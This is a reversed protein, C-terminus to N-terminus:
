FIARTTFQIPGAYYSTATRIYIDYETGSDLGTITYPQVDTTYTPAGPIANRAVVAIYWITPTGSWSLLLSGTTIQSTSIASPADSVYAAREIAGISPTISRTNGYYDVILSPIGFSTLDLGTQYGISTQPLPLAQTLNTNAFYGNAEYGTAQYTAFQLTNYSTGNISAIIDIAASAPNYYHNYNIIDNIVNTGTARLLMKSSSPNNSSTHLINNIIRVQNTGVSNTSDIGFISIGSVPSTPSGLITISNGCIFGFSNLHNAHNYFIATISGRSILNYILNNSIINTSVNSAVTSSVSIGTFGLGTTTNHAFPDHINNRNIITNVSNAVRISIGLTTPVLRTSLSYIYNNQILASHQNRAVVGSTRQNIFTNNTITNQYADSITPLTSLGGIACGNDMGIVTNNSFTIRKAAHGNNFTSNSNNVSNIIFGTSGGPTSIGLNRILCNTFTMDECNTNLSNYLHFGTNSTGSVTIILNNIDMWKTGEFSIAGKLALSTDLADSIFEEGNGQITIRNSTDLTPIFNFIIQGNYPGSGPTVNITTSSVYSARPLYYALDTFNNFNTGASLVDTPSASNITYSGAITLDFKTTFFPVFGNYYSLTSGNNNQIYVEYTTNPTLGTLTYPNTTAVYTPIGTPSANPAVLEINWSTLGGASDSWAMTASTHYIALFVMNYSAAQNFTDREFAGIDPTGSRAAGFYDVTLYPTFLGSVDLGVNIGTSTEAIIKGNLFPNVNYGNVQYNAAQLNAFQATTYNVNGITAIRNTGATSNNFMMNYDFSLTPTVLSATNSVFLTKVGTSESQIYVINNKINETSTTDQAISIGFKNSTGTGNTVISINNYYISLANVSTTTSSIGIIIGISQFNYILNNCILNNNGLASVGATIFIGTVSSLSAANTVMMDHIRNRNIITNLSSESTIGVYTTLNLPAILEQYINNNEIICNTQGTVFIGNASQDCVTCNRVVNQYSGTASLNSKNGVLIIGSRGNMFVCGDIVIRKSNNTPVTSSTPDSQINSISLHINDASFGGQQSDFYCNTINMDECYNNSMDKLLIMGFHQMTLGKLKLNNINMWTTAEFRMIYRGFSYGFYIIENNNGNITITNTVSAGTHRKFIFHENYPGNSVNVTVPGAIVSVSLYYALDTFSRFNTGATLIDTPNLKDITYVGSFSINSITNIRTPGSWYSQTVDDSQVYVEYATLPSLGLLTYPNSVGSHTPTGTPIGNLPVLEINWLSAVGNETWSIQASNATISSIVIASPAQITFALREIAGINPPIPRVRDFYDNLLAPVGLSTLNFGLNFGVATQPIYSDARLFMDTYYGNTERGTAQLNAFQAVSYSVGAITAIRNTGGSSPNYYMNYDLEINTLSSILNVLTKIASGTSNIHFVNNKFKYVYPLPAPTTGYLICDTTNAAVSNIFSFTNNYISLTTATGIIYIGRVIGISTFNYFLNNSVILDSNTGTPSYIGFASSATSLSPALTYPDHIRNRNILLNVNGLINIFSYTNGSFDIYLTMRHINNNEIIGNVQYEFQIGSSFQNFIECNRVINQYAGTITTNTSNGRFYVGALGGSLKCSDIIINKANHTYTSLLDFENHMLIPYYDTLSISTVAQEVEITCGIININNCDYSNINDRVFLIGWQYGGTMRINLNTINIYQSGYFLIGYKKSLYKATYQLLENQGDITVTYTGFSTNRNFEVQETYPGSGSVVNITVNSTLYAKNVYYAMDTFNNFNTGASEIDTAAASNITYAGSMNIYTELRIPGVWIDATGRTYQRIYVDYQTLPDLGTITYPNTINTYTAGVPIFNVPGIALDWQTEPSTFAITASEHTKTVSIASIQSIRAITYPNVAQSGDVDTATLTYTAPYKNSIDQTTESSSWSYSFPGRGYVSADVSGNNYSAAADYIHADLAFQVTTNKILSGEIIYSINATDPLAALTNTTKFYFRLDNTAVENYLIVGNLPSYDSFHGVFMGSVSSIRIRKDIPPFVKNDMTIPLSLTYVDPSNVVIQHKGWIQFSDENIKVVIGNQFTPYTPLTYTSIILDSTQDIDSKLRSILTGSDIWSLQRTKTDLAAIHKDQYEYTTSYYHVVQLIDSVNIQRSSVLLKDNSMTIREAYQDEDMIPEFTNLLVDNEYMKVDTATGIAVYYNNMAVSLNAVAAIEYEIEWLENNFNYLYIFVTDSNAIVMKTNEIQLNKGFQTGPRSLTQSLTWTGLVLDYVYVLGTTPYGPASVAITTGVMDLAQGFNYLGPDPNLIDANYINDTQSFINVKTSNAAAYYDKSLVLSDRQISGDIREIGYISTAPNQKYLKLITDTVPTNPDHYVNFANLYFGAANIGSDSRFYFRFQISTTYTFDTLVHTATVGGGSTNGWVTTNDNPGPNATTNYWNTGKGNTNSSSDGVMQYAGGDISIWLNCGDWTNESIYNILLEVSIANLTTILPSQLYTNTNSAYDGSINTKWGKTGPSFGLSSPTGYEWITAAALNVATWGGDDAEFDQLYNTTINYSDTYSFAIYNNLISACVDTLTGNGGMTIVQVLEMKNFIYVVGGNTTGDAPAVVISMDGDVDIAQNFKSIDTKVGPTYEILNALFPNNIQVDDKIRKWNSGSNINLANLQPITASSTSNIWQTGDYKFSQGDAAGSVDVDNIHNLLTPRNTPIWTGSNYSVLQGDTVGSVNVDELDEFNTPPNPAEINEWETGHYGLAEGESPSDISVDDLQTLDQAPIDAWEQVGNNYTIVQGDTGAAAFEINTVNLSSATLNDCVVKNRCIDILAAKNVDVTPYTGSM